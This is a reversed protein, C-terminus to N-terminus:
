IEPPWHAGLLPPKLGTLSSASGHASGASPRSRHGPLQALQAEQTRRRRGQASGHAPGARTALLGHEETLGRSLLPLLHPSHSGGPETLVCSSAVTHDWVTKWRHPAQCELPISSAERLCEGDDRPLLAPPASPSFSPARQQAHSGAARNRRDGVASFTLERPLFQCRKQRFHSRQWLTRDGPPCASTLGPWPM